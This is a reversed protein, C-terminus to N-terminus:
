HPTTPSPGGKIVCREAVFADLIAIVNQADQRQHAVVLKSLWGGMEQLVKEASEAGAQAGMRYLDYLADAMEDDSKARLAPLTALIMERTARDADGEILSVTVNTKKPPMETRELM